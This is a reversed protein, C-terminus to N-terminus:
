TGIEGVHMCVRTGVLSCAMCTFDGAHLGHMCIHSAGRALV